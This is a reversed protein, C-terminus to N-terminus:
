VCNKRSEPRVGRTDQLLLLLLMQQKNHQEYRVQHKHLFASLTELRAELMDCEAISAKSLVDSVVGVRFYDQHYYDLVVGVCDYRQFSIFPVGRATILSRRGSSVVCLPAVAAVIGEGVSSLLFAALLRVVVVCRSFSVSLHCYSGWWWCLLMIREVPVCGTRSVM